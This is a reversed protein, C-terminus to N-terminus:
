MVNRIIYLFTHKALITLLQTNHTGILVGLPCTQIEPNTIIEMAVTIIDWISCHLIRKLSAFHM